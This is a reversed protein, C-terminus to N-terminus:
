DEVVTTTQEMAGAVMAVVGGQLASASAQPTLVCARIPALSHLTPLTIPPILVQPARDYAVTLGKMDMTVNVALSETPTLHRHTTPTQATAKQRCLQLSECALADAVAMAHLKLQTTGLVALTNAPVGSSDMMASVNALVELAFERMPVNLWIIMHLMTLARTALGLCDMPAREKVATVEQSVMKVLVGRQLQM